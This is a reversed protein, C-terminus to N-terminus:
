TAKKVSVIYNNAVLEKKINELESEKVTKTATVTYKTETAKGNLKDIYNQVTKVFTTWHPIIQIPCNKTKNNLVCLEDKTGTKKAKKNLWYTHTFLNDTNMNNKNLLYAALKAANDEAKSSNGIVEIAITATNGDGTGDGSHWGQWSTLLNQWAETDDVYFHVRVDKMNGNVTARTYQESMTTGNVTIAETNHITVGKLAKTRREPMALNNPNHKTLYYEKVTVGNLTKTKDPVLVAM